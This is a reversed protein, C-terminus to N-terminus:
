HMGQTTQACPELITLGSAIRSALCVAGFDNLTKYLEPPINVKMQLDGVDEIAITIYASRDPDGERSYFSFNRFTAKM